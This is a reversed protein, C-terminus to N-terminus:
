AQDMATTPDTVAGAARERAAPPDLPIQASVVTGVTTSDIRLSAGIAGLRDALGRLGTGQSENVGGPGKDAVEVLLGGPGIVLKVTVDVDGAHKAVNTLAEAVLFYATLEIQENLPPLPDIVLHTPAARRSAVARVAAALGGEALASPPLDRVLSRLDTVAERLTQTTSGLLGVLHPDTNGSDRLADAALQLAIGAVVLHQQAGDHIAREIRRREERTAEVTRRAEDQARGSMLRLLQLRGFADTPADHIVVGRQLVVVRDAVEFVEEIDHTVLVV